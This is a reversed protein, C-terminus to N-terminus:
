SVEDRMAVQHASRLKCFWIMVADIGGERVSEETRDFLVQVHGPLNLRILQDVNCSIGVHYRTNMILCVHFMLTNREITADQNHISQLLRVFRNPIPDASRAVRARKKPSCYLVQVKSPEITADFLGTTARIPCITFDTFNANSPDLRRFGKPWSCSM